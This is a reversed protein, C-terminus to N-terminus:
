PLLQLPLEGDVLAGVTVQRQPRGTAERHLENAELGRGAGGEVM